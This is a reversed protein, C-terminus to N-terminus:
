WVPKEHSWNIISAVRANLEKINTPHESTRSYWGWTVPSTFPAQVIPSTYGKEWRIMITRASSIKELDEAPKIYYRTGGAGTHIFVTKNGDSSLALHGLWVM